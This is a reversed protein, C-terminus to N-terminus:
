GDNERAAEARREAILEDVISPKGQLYPAFADQIDRITRTKSKMRLTGDDLELYVPGGDAVDLLRRYEVPLVMRGDPAITVWLGPPLPRETEYAAASEEAQVLVNRVHQYRIDLFRAIEARAYGAKALARIKESKTTMGATIKEMAAPDVTRPPKKM